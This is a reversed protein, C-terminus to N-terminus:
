GVREDDLGKKLKARKLISEYEAQTFPTIETYVKHDDVGYELEGLSILLIVIILMDVAASLWAGRQFDVWGFAGFVPVLTLLVGWLCGVPNFIRTM